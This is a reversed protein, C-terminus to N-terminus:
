RGWLATIFQVDVVDVDGDGDLDFLSLDHPEARWQAAVVQVDAADVDGDNDFDGIASAPTPSQNPGPYPRPTNTTPPAPTATSSPTDSPTPTPSATTTATRSSTPSPTRTPTATATRTPSATVTNTPSPTVTPRPTQTATPLPTPSATWTPTRTVSPSPSATRTLTPSASATFTATPMPTATRSPTRTPSATGTLTSTPIATPSATATPTRTLTAAQTPTRTSTPTTGPTRTATATLTRTPTATGTTTRTPSATSTFTPTRTFTPTASPTRTATATRTLTPTATGTPARTPSATSTFTPTRTGTPTASPAQTATATRTLTPSPTGTPTRTPSATPSSTRTPTRTGTPTRTPSATPSSTGSPTRSATPSPAPTGGFVTCGTARIMNYGVQSPAAWYNYHEIWNTSGDQNYFNRGVPIPASSDLLVSPTTGATGDLYEVVVMFPDPNNIVINYPSLDITMWNPYFTTVNVPDSQGLQLDPLGADIAYVRIRVTVSAVAGAFRYLLFSASQLKIPYQTWDPALVEGVLYGAQYNSSYGVPSGNDNAFTAPTCAQPTGATPTPSPTATPTNPSSTPDGTSTPFPTLTPAPTGSGPATFDAVMSSACGSRVVASASSAAGSYLRANPNTTDDFAPNNSSGPFPDGPDGRSAGTDLQNLGDAEELDVLRRADNANASNSSTRTEDIHWILLGCGPLGADYGTPQRNEVLFYEGSGSQGYFEWDVGGPNDLLQYVTPSSSAAPLWANNLSGIVQIPTLWGEYWRSWAEPLAPSDGSYTVGNWSGAGMIGWAGIGESSGDTDYLDPLSLDHGLEHAMIGITAAHGPPRSATCHWEGFQMYGGGGYGSAVYVNDVRPASSLASRHGWVNPQCAGAGGYSTEYGALITFLHLETSSIYGDHNTDFNAFNVYPDAAVIADRVIQANISGVSGGTNPHAYPLTLWGVVGDNSTGHTEEAPVLDLGNYSAQRYFDRVSGSAGFFRQNWDAATTGVAPRDTFAVLLVLIRQTGLNHGSPVAQTGGFPPSETSVAPRLRHTLGGPADRGVVLRTPQLTGEASLSAYVWNRTDNDFVITYGDLTEVGNLWEDGFARADFTSGDAQTLQFVVPAAPGALAPTPTAMGFFLAALLCAAAALRCPIRRSM